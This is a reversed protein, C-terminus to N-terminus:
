KARRGKGEAKGGDPGDESKGVGLLAKEERAKRAHKDVRATKELEVAVFQVIPPAVMASGATKGVGDFLYAEEGGLIAAGTVTTAAGTGLGIARLGARARERCQYEILQARRCIIEVVALNSLDLQDYCGAISLLRMMQM